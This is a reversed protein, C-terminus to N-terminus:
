AAGRGSGLPIVAHLQMIVKGTQQLVHDVDVGMTKLAQLAVDARDAPIKTLIRPQRRDDLREYPLPRPRV